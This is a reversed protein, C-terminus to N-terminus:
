WWGYLEADLAAYEQFMRVLSSYGVPGVGYKEQFEPRYPTAALDAAMDKVVESPICEEYLTQGTIETIIDNYVKGRFSSDGNASFMGGFIGAYNHGASVPVPEAQGAVRKMWFSDLGM